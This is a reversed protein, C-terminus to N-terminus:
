LLMDSLLVRCFCSAIDTSQKQAPTMGLEGFKGLSPFKDLNTGRIGKAPVLPGLKVLVRDM